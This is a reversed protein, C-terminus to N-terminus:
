NHYFNKKKWAGSKINVNNNHVIESNTDKLYKLKNDKKESDKDKKESDNKMIKHINALLVLDLLLNM